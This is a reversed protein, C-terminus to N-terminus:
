LLDNCIWVIGFHHYNHIIIQFLQDFSNLQRILHDVDLFLELSIAHLRCCVARLAKGHCLDEAYVRLWLGSFPLLEAPPGLEGISMKWLKELIDSCQSKSFDVQGYIAKHTNTFTVINTM